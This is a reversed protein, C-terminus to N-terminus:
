QKLMVKYRFIDLDPMGEFFWRGEKQSFCIRVPIWNGNVCLYLHKGPLIKQKGLRETQM